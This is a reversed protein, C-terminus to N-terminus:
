IISSDWIAVVARKNGSFRRKIYHKRMPDSAIANKQRAFYTLLKVVGSHWWVFSNNDVVQWM